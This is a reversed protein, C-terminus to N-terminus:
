SMTAQNIKNMMLEPILKLSTPVLGNGSGIADDFAGEAVDKFSIQIFLQINEGPISSNISTM